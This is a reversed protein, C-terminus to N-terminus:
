LPLVLEIEDRIPIGYFGQEPISPKLRRAAKIADRHVAVFLFGKLQYFRMADLNDNTTILWIGRCKAEVAKQKVQELLATGIGKGPEGANMTIIECEKGYINYTILGTRRGSEEAVFGPLTEAKHVRGRTVIETGGWEERIYDNAWARDEERLPRISIDGM